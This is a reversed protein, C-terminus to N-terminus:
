SSLVRLVVVRTGHKKFRNRKLTVRGAITASEAMRARCITGTRPHTELLRGGANSIIPPSVTQANVKAPLKM